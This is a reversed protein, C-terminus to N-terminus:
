KPSTKESEELIQKRKSKGLLVAQKFLKAYLEIACPTDDNGPVPYTILTPDCSTDVIGVSPILLKATDRVAIHTKFVSNHCNFFIVLDPARIAASFFRESNVFTGPNFFRCHAFEGCDRAANEVIHGTQRSRNVFLIIGGRFAIHATFNLAERLRAVTQDLDIILHGLRSGFIYPAM